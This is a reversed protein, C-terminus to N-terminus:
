SPAAFCAGYMMSLRRSALAPVPCVAAGAPQGAPSCAHAASSDRPVAIYIPSHVKSADTAKENSQAIAPGQRPM